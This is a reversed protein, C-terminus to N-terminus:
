VFRILNFHFAWSLCMAFGMRTGARRAPTPRNPRVTVSSGNFCPLATRAITRFQPRARAM